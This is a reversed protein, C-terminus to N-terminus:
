KSNKLYLIIGKLQLRFQHKEKEDLDEWKRIYSNKRELEVSEKSYIYGDLVMHRCWSIHITKSLKDILKRSAEPLKSYENLDVPINSLLEENGKALVDLTNAYYASDIYQRLFRYQQMLTRYDRDQKAKECIDNKGSWSPAEMGLGDFYSLYMKKAKASSHASVGIANGSVIWKPQLIEDRNGYPLIAECGAIANYSDCISKTNEDLNFVRVLIKLNKLGGKRFRIAYEAIKGATELNKEDDRCSIVIYNLEDIRERLKKWFDESLIEVQEYVVDKDYYSMGPVSAKFSGSIQDMKYDQIYIKTPIPESDAGVFSGYRFLFNMAERGSEGFAYILANFSSDTVYGLSKGDKDKAVNMVNVPHYKPQERLTRIAMTNPYYFHVHTNFLKLEYQQTLGHKFALCQITHSAFYKDTTLTLANAVNKEADGQLLYFSTHEDTVPALLELGLQELMDEHPTCDKINRKAKLTIINKEELGNSEAFGQFMNQLIAGFSLEKAEEESPFEVFAIKENKDIRKALCISNSDIGFFVHSVKIKRRAYLKLSIKTMARKGFLSIIASISTVVACAYVFIFLDLFFPEEQAPEIEILDTHSVFLEVSSLASRLLITFPGELSNSITFGYCYLAMGCLFLLLASSRLVKINLRSAGLYTVYALFLVMFVIQLGVSGTSWFQSILSALIM